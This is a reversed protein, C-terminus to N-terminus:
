GAAALNRYMDAHALSWGVTSCWLQFLCDRPGDCGRDRRDQSHTLGEGRAQTIGYDGSEAGGRQTGKLSGKM